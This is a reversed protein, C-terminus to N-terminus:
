VGTSSNKRSNALKEMDNINLNIGFPIGMLKSM